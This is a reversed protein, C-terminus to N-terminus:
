VAFLCDTNPQASRFAPYLRSDAPRRDHSRVIIPTSHGPQRKLPPHVPTEATQVSGFTSNRTLIAPRWAICSSTISNAHAPESRAMALSCVSRANMAAPAIRDGSYPVHARMMFYGPAAGAVPLGTRFRHLGHSRNQVKSLAGRASDDARGSPGSMRNNRAATRLRFFGATEPV